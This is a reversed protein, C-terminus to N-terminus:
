YSMKPTDSVNKTQSDGRSNGWRLSIESASPPLEPLNASLAGSTIKNLWAIASNEKDGMYRTIRLEPINRKNITAHAHYLVIDVMKQVLLGNRNDGQMWKTGDTPLVGTISFPSNFTWTQSNSPAYINDNRKSTYVGNNFWVQDGLSYKASYDYAPFPLLVYFLQYDLCVFAWENPVFAHATSGGISRYISGQYNVRQTATYVTTASFDPEHYQVRNNGYYTSALSFVPTDTFIQEIDYRQKLYGSIEEIAAPETDLIRQQVTYTADSGNDFVQNLDDVTITREYDKQLLFRM